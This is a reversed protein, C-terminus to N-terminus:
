HVLRGVVRRQGLRVRGDLGVVVRDDGGAAEVDDAGLAVLAPPDVVLEAASRTAPSISRMPRSSSTAISDRSTDRVISLAWVRTSPKLKSMRLRTTSTAATM